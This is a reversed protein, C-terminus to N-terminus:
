PLFFLLFFFFVMNKVYPVYEYSNNTCMNKNTNNTENGSYDLHM